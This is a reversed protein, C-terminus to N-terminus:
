GATIKRLQKPRVKSFSGQAERNKSFVVKPKVGGVLPVIEIDLTFTHQKDGLNRPFTGKDRTQNAPMEKYAVQLKCLDVEVKYTSLMRDRIIELHLEGMGGLVTQGTEDDQTVKLSPDERSLCTLALEFQKQEALSPPEVSCFVVPDPVAPGCLAANSVNDDPDMNAEIASAKSKSLLLTDGTQALKLGSIM